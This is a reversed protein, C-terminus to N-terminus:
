GGVQGVSKSGGQAGEREGEGSCRGALQKQSFTPCITVSCRLREGGSTRGGSEVGSRCLRSVARSVARNSKQQCQNECGRGQGGGTAEM